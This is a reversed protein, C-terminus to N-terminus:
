EDEETVEDIEANTIAALGDVFTDFDNRLATLATGQTGVTEQLDEINEEAVNLRNDYGGEALNEAITKNENITELVVSILFHVLGNDDVENTMVFPAFPDLKPRYSLLRGLDRKAESSM